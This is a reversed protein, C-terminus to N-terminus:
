GGGLVGTSFVCIEVVETIRLGECVTFPPTTTVPLEWTAVAASCCWGIGSCGILGGEM